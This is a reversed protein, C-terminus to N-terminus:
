SKEDRKVLADAFDELGKEKMQRLIENNTGRYCIGEVCSGEIAMFMIELEQQTRPQNYIRCNIPGDCNCNFSILEPATQTTADCVICHDTSYFPGPANEPSMGMVPEVLVDRDPDYNNDLAM